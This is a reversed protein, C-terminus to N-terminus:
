FLRKTSSNPFAQKLLSSHHSSLLANPFRQSICDQIDSFKVPKAEPGDDSENYQEKLYQVIAADMTSVEGQWEGWADVERSTESWAKGM